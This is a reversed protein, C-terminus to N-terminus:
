GVRARRRTDERGDQGDDYALERLLKRGLSDGLLSDGHEVLYRGLVMPHYVYAEQDELQWYRAYPLRNHIITGQDNRYLLFDFSEEGKQLIQM